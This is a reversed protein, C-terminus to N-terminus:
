DKEKQLTRYTTEQRWGYSMMTIQQRLGFLDSELTTDLDASISRNRSQCLRLLRRIGANKEWIKTYVTDIAGLFVEDQVVM